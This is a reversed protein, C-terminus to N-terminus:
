LNFHEQIKPILMDAILKHGDVTPHLTQQTLLKQRMLYASREDDAIWGSLHTEVKTPTFGSSACMNSM